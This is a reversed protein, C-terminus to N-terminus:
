YIKANRDRPPRIVFPLVGSILMIGAIMELAETYHGTSQRVRAILTPGCMAAFGVGDADAWLQFRRKASRFLGRRVCADYRLGRRLLVPHHFRLGRAGHVQARSLVAFMVLQTVFMISYGAGARHFGFGHGCSDARRQLRSLEWWRLRRQPAAKPSRRPWPRQKLFSRSEPWRENLFLM